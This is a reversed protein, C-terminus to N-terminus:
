GWSVHVLTRISSVLESLISLRQLHYMAVDACGRLLEELKCCMWECIDCLDLGRRHMDKSQTASHGSWTRFCTLINPLISTKSNCTEVCCFTIEGILTKGTYLWDRGFYVCINSTFLIDPHIVGWLNNAVSEDIDRACLAAVMLVLLVYRWTAGGLPSVIGMAAWPAWNFAHASMFDNSCHSHCTHDLYNAHSQLNCVAIPMHLTWCTQM